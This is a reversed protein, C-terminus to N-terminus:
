TVVGIAELAGVVGVAGAVEAVTGRRRGGVAHAVAVVGVVVAVLDAVDAIGARIDDVRQLDGFTAHLVVVVVAVENARHTLGVRRALVVLVRPGVGEHLDRDIPRAAGGAVR